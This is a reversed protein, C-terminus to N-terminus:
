LKDVPASVPRLTAQPPLASTPAGSATAPTLRPKITLCYTPLDNVVANTASFNARALSLEKQQCPGAVIEENTLGAVDVNCDTFGGGTSDIGSVNLVRTSMDYSATAPGSCVAGSGPTVTVAPTASNFRLGFPLTVSLGIDTKPNPSGKYLMLRLNITDGENISMPQSNPPIPPSYFAHGVLLPSWLFTVSASAPSGAATSPITGVPANTTNTITGEISGLVQIKAECSAGPAIAITSFRVNKERWQSTGDSTSTIFGCNAPTFMTYNPAGLVMPATFINDVRMGMWGTSQNTLKVVLLMTTYIQLPESTPLMPMFSAEVKPPTTLTAAVPTVSNSAASTPGTGVSNTARVTFTYATGNTLGSVTIPSATGTATLGGPSSTVTYGTIASGGNSVPATFTVSAQANGATATGITPAGPTTATPLSLTSVNNAPVADAMESVGVITRMIGHPALTTLDLTVVEDVGLSPITWIGAVGDYIGRTAVTSAANLGEPLVGVIRLNNAAVPGNNTVITSLTVLQGLAIVPKDSQQTIAIDADGRVRNFMLQAENNSLTPEAVESAARAVVLSSAGTQSRVGLLLSPTAGPAINGVAWAGTAHDFTGVSPTSSVVALEAPIVLNVTTGAAVSPGANTLGITLNATENAIITLKSAAMSIAVDSSPAALNISGTASNNSLIADTSQISNLTATVSAASADVLNGRIILSAARLSAIEDINWVGNTFSGSSASVSIAVLNAPVAIALSLTSAADPGFNSVDIVYSVSSGASAAAVTPTVLVRIDSHQLAVPNLTTMASNNGAVPDPTDSTVVISLNYAKYNDVRATVTLTPEADKVIDGLTWVGTVYNYTGATPVASVFTLGTPLVITARANTGTAPGVNKVKATITANNGQVIVSSGANLSSVLDAANAVQTRKAFRYGTASMGATISIASIVNASVVGGASGATNKGDAYGSISAVTMRYTGPLLQSFTFAGNNDSTASVAVSANSTGTGQLDIRVLGLAPEGGDRTGNNNGDVFVQGSLSALQDVPLLDVTYDGTSNADFFNVSYAWSLDSNRKKSLWINEVPLVKGDSRTIRGPRVAGNNPDAIKVYALGAAANFRLRYNGGTSSTLTAGASYDTVATNQGESEFVKLTTGDLALFDRINDRGPLDVKIDRVLIYTNVEKLLSTLTGGLSDDHTFTSALETFRGSLTTTMDWRGTKTSSSPIDGFNLLLTKDSAVDNVYGNIIQFAIVLGQQNDVITPQVTEIKLKNAAGGGVNKIRVGFTFPVSPEVESTFADDAYVDGALFYDLILQPQPKVAITEPSVTVTKTEGELTYTLTGGIRYTRGGPLLGGAGASPIILWKVTGSTKPAVAGSGDTAGVGDLSDLRLFFTAATNNADTTAVVPSGNADQFTLNISIGTLSSADLGNNIKMVADFAQRELSVKQKIEIKV